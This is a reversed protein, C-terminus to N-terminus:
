SHTFTADPDVQEATTSFITATTWLNTIGVEINDNFSCDCNTTTSKVVDTILLGRRVSQYTLVTIQQPGYDFRPIRTTHIILTVQTELTEFTQNLTLRFRYEVRKHKGKLASVVKILNAVDETRDM